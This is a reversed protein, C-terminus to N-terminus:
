RSMRERPHMQGVETDDAGKADTQVRGRGSANSASEGGAGRAEEGRKRLKRILKGRVESM